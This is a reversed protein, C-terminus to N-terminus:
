FCGFRTWAQKLLYAATLGEAGGGIVAIRKGTETARSNHIREGSRMEYDAVFRKLNNIAVPEDM